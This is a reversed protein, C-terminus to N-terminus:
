GPVSDLACLGALLALDLLLDLAGDGDGLTLDRFDVAELDLILGDGLEGDSALESSESSDSKSSRRDRLERFTFRSLKLLLLGLYWSSSPCRDTVDLPRRPYSSQAGRRTKQGFNVQVKCM